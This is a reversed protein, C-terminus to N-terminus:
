RRNLNSLVLSIGTAGGLKVFERLMAEDIPTDLDWLIHVSQRVKARTAKRKRMLELFREMLQEARAASDVVFSGRRYWLSEFVFDDNVGNEEASVRIIDVPKFIGAFRTASKPIKNIVYQDSGLYLFSDGRKIIWLLDEVIGRRAPEPREMVPKLPTLGNVLYSPLPLPCYAEQYVNIRRFYDSIILGVAILIMIRIVKLNIGDLQNAMKLEAAVMMVPASEAVADVSDIDIGERAVSAGIKGEVSDDSKRDKSRNKKEKMWKPVSPQNVKEMYKRDSEDMGAVDLFDGSADEAFRIQAVDDGRSDEMAKRKVDQQAEWAAMEESRDPQIKNVYHLSNIKAFVFALLAVALALHCLWQRPRRCFHILWLLPVCVWLLVSIYGTIDFYNWNM